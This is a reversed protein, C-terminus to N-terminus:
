HLTVNRAAAPPRGCEAFIALSAMRVYEEIDAYSAEQEGDELAQDQETLGIQAIDSLDGLWEKLDDSMQQGGGGLAFGELFGRCWEGLAQTRVELGYDDDPLLLRFAYDDSELAALTNQYLPPLCPLVAIEGVDLWQRAERAWADAGPRKGAALQGSLMGHLEAPSQLANAALLADAIDDFELSVDTMAPVPLIWVPM